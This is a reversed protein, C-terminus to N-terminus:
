NDWDTNSCLLVSFFWNLENNNQQQLPAYRCRLCVSCDCNISLYIYIKIERKSHTRDWDNKWGIETYKCWLGCRISGVIVCFFFSFATCCKYISLPANTRQFMSAVFPTRSCGSCVKMRVHYLMQLLFANLTALSVRNETPMWQVLVLEDWISVRCVYVIWIEKTECVINTITIFVFFFASPSACCKNRNKKQHTKLLTM